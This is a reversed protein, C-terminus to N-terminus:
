KKIEKIYTSSMSTTDDQRAMWGVVVNAPMGKKGYIIIKQEYRDAMDMTIEITHQIGEQANAYRKRCNKGIALITDWGTQFPKERQLDERM